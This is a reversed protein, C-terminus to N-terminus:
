MDACRAVSGYYTDSRIHNAAKRFSSKVEDDSRKVLSCGSKLVQSKYYDSNIDRVTNLVSLIQAKTPRWDLIDKLIESKYYDSNINSVNDLVRDMASDTLEQRLVDKLIESIYYDSDMRNMATLFAEISESSKLFLKSYDKFVESIYYDSSLDKPVFAAIKIIDADPIDDQYILEQLYIHSAWDSRILEVEKLVGEVGGQKYIRAVRDEAGIATARIVELLVEALWKKGEPEFPVQKRGEYYEYVIEGDDMEAMIEKKEGFSSKRIRMFGYRSMSKIASDDDTFEIRGDYDIELRMGDDRISYTNVGNRHSIRTKRQARAEQFSAVVILAGISVSALSKLTSRM